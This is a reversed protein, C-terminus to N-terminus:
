CGREFADAPPLGLEARMRRATEIIRQHRKEVGILALERAPNRKRWPWNV